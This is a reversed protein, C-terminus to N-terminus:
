LGRHAARLARVDHRGDGLVRVPLRAHLARPRWLPQRGEARRDRPGEGRRAERRHRPQRVVDRHRPPGQARHLRAALLHAAAAGDRDLECLGLRAEQLVAAQRAGREGQLYNVCEAHLHSPLKALTTREDVGRQTTWLYDFYAMIREQMEAPLRRSRMCQKLNDIMLHHAEGQTNLTAFIFAYTAVITTSICAGLVMVVMTFVTEALTVPAIDGFGVTVLTVVAWYMGRAYQRGISAGRLDDSDLFTGACRSEGIGCEAHTLIFFGCACYHSTFFMLVSLRLLRLIGVSTLFRGVRFARMKVKVSRFYTPLLFVRLLRNARLVYFYKAGFALCLLELPLMSAAELFLRRRDEADLQQFLASQEVDLEDGLDEHAMITSADEDEAAV